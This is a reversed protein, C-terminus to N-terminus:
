SSLWCIGFFDAFWLVMTKQWEDRVKSNVKLPRRDMVLLGICVETFSLVFLAELFTISSGTTKGNMMMIGVDEVGTSCRSSDFVPLGFSDM